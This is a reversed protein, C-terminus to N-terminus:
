LSNNEFRDQVVTLLNVEKQDIRLYILGVIIAFIVMTLVQLTQVCYLWSPHTIPIVLSPPFVLAARRSNVYSLFVICSLVLKSNVVNKGVMKHKYMIYLQFIKLLFFKYNVKPDENEFHEKISYLCM